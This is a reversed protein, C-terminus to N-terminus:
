TGTPSSTACRARARASWASSTCCATSACRCTRERVRWAPRRAARGTEAPEGLRGATGSDLGREESGDGAGGGRTRGLDRHGARGPWRGRRGPRPRAPPRGALPPAFTVSYVATGSRSGTSAQRRWRSTAPPQVGAPLRAPERVERVARRRPGPSRPVPVADPSALLYGRLEPPVAPYRELHALWVRRRRMTWLYHRARRILWGSRAPAPTAQQRRTRTAASCPGRTGPRGAPCCGRWCTFASSSTSCRRQRSAASAPPWADTLERTSPQHWGNGSRM